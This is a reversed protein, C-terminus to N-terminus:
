VMKFNNDEDLYWLPYSTSNPTSPSTGIISINESSSIKGTVSEIGPGADTTALICACIKDNVTAIDVRHGAVVKCALVKLLIQAPYDPNDINDVETVGGEGKFMFTCAIGQRILTTLLGFVASILKEEVIIAEEPVAEPKRYLDLVVVPQVSATAEDLRVMLMDKKSSLKWNIRKLADGRVYERHEYGPVTNSSFLMATENDDENETTAVVNAISRILSSSAKIDPIQPIVGVSIRDTNVKVPFKM